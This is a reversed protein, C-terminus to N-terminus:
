EKSIRGFKNSFSYYPMAAQESLLGVGAHGALGSVAAAAAATANNLLAQRVETASPTVTVPALEVVHTGNIEQAPIVSVNSHFAALSLATFLVSATMAAFKQTNM